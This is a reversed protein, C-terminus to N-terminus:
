FLDKLKFEVKGTSEDANSCDNQFFGNGNKGETESGEISPKSLLDVATSNVSTREIEVNAGHVTKLQIQIKAKIRSIKKNISETKFGTEVEVGCQEPLPDLKKAKKKRKKRANKSLSKEESHVSTVDEAEEDIIQGNSLNSVLPTDVNVNKVMPIDDLRQTTKIPISEKKDNTNTRTLISDQSQNFKQTENFLIIDLSSHKYTTLEAQNCQDASTQITKREIEDRLGIFTAVEPYENRNLALFQPNVINRKTQKDLIILHCKKAIDHLFNVRESYGMTLLDIVLLTESDLQLHKGQQVANNLQTTPSTNATSIKQLAEIVATYEYSSPLKTQIIKSSRKPSNSTSSNTKTESTINSKVTKGNDALITPNSPQVNALINVPLNETKEGIELIQNNDITPIPVNDSLTNTKLNSNLNTTSSDAFDPATTDAIIFVM